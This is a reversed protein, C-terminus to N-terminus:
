AIGHRIAYATADARSHAGVKNYINTVHRGVTRVSLVLQEAIERDSRGATILRLVEVERATLGDPNAAAPDGDGAIRERIALARDILPRGAGHRTYIDIAADVRELAPTRYRRGHASLLEAWLLLGGAEEWPLHYRRLIEIAQELLGQADEVRREAAALVAEALTVRGAAGRWDEGLALVDRCRDVEARAEDLRGQAAYAMALGPRDRMEEGICRQDALELAHTFAGIAAEYSGSTGHLRGSWHAAFLRNFQSGNAHAWGDWGHLFSESEAWDGRWIGALARPIFSMNGGRSVTLDGAIVAAEGAIAGLYGHLYSGPPEGSQELWNVVRQEASVPDELCGFEAMATMLVGTYSGTRGSRIAAEAAEQMLRLGRGVEGCHAVLAYGHLGAARTWIVEEGLRGALEMARWSYELTETCPGSYFYCGAMGDYLAALDRDQPGRTLVPEAARFYEMARSSDVFAPLRALMTGIRLQLRALRRPDGGEHELLGLATRFHSIAEPIAYLAQAAYGARISYEIVKQPNALDGAARYLSALAPIYPDLNRAHLRELADATALRLRQKQPRSVGGLIAQRALQHVFAYLTAGASPSGVVPRASDLSGPPLGPAHTSAPRVEEILHAACAEEVAGILDEPAPAPMGPVQQSCVDRVVEYEFVRGAPAACALFERCAPSLRELRLEIARRVSDPIGAAQLNPSLLWHGAPDILKGEELLHLVLQHLFFPNGETAQLLAPAVLSPPPGAGLNRLMEMVDAEAFPALGLPTALSERTLVETTKALAPTESVSANRHTALVLIPVEGVRRALYLLLRLTSEDAWHLDELQILLPRARASRELFGAVAAFMPREGADSQWDGASNLDSIVERVDPVLRAIERAASGGLRERAEEPKLRRLVGELVEVWPGFPPRALIEDCHGTVCLFGAQRAMDAAERCLRSKGIGPEGSVLVVTGRGERAQELCRDIQALELKRGAIPSSVRADGPPFAASVPAPRPEQAM